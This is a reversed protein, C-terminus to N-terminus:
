KLYEAVSVSLALIIGFLLHLKATNADIIKLKLSNQSDKFLGLALPFTLFTALALWPLLKLALLVLVSLYAALILMTYLRLAWVKGILIPLTKIGAHQDHELDRINNGNLIATALFGVPIALLLASLGFSGTLAISTTIVLLPGFIIFVLLEGLAYYKYGPKGTYFYAALLGTVILLCMILGRVYSLYLGGAASVLLAFWAAVFLEQPTLLGDVLVRSSGFSTKTDIKNVFDYYDNFLASVLLASWAVL